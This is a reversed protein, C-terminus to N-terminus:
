NISSSLTKRLSMRLVLLSMEMQQGLRRSSNFIRLIAQKAPRQTGGWTFLVTNLGSSTLMWKTATSSSKSNTPQSRSPRLLNSNLVRILRVAKERSSTVTLRCWNLTMQLRWIALRLIPQLSRKNPRCLSMFDIRIVKPVRLEVQRNQPPLYFRWYSPHFRDEPIILNLYQRRLEPCKIVM